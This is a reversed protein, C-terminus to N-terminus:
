KEAEKCFPNKVLSCSDSLTVLMGAAELMKELFSSEPANLDLQETRKGWDPSKILNREEFVFGFHNAINQKFRDLTMRRTPVLSLVFFRLLQDTLVFRAKGRRRPVIIGISKGIRNYLKHGYRNDAEKYISERKEEPPSVLDPLRLAQYITLFVDALSNQSLEKRKRDNEEIESFLLRYNLGDSDENDPRHRYSQATLSRMLQMACAVQLMDVTEMLDIKAQLIRRLEIAFLYGERWSEVPCWGCSAKRETVDATDLIIESADSQQNIFDALENLKNPTRSFFKEFVIQLQLLLEEPVREEPLTDNWRGTAKLWSEVAESKQNLANCLQLYLLEGGRALILHQSYKFMKLANLWTDVNKAKSANWIIESSLLGKCFPLFGQSCWTRQAGSGWYGLFLNSLLILADDKQDEDIYIKSKLGKWLEQCHQRHTEHRTELRSNGLFAFLKLNLKAQPFYYLPDYKWSSLTNKDPFYGTIKSSDIEKKSTLVLLFEELLEMLSQDAFFRLGFLKIAPNNSETESIDYVAHPFRPIYNSM